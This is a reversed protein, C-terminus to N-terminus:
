HQFKQIYPALQGFIHWASHGPTEAPCRHGRHMTHFVEPCISIIYCISFCIIDDRLPTFPFTSICTKQDVSLFCYNPTVLHLM